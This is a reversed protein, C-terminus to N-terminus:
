NMFYFSFVFLHYLKDVCAILVGATQTGCISLDRVTVDRESQTHTHTCAHTHAHQQNTQKTNLRISFSPDSKRRRKRRYGDSLTLATVSTALTALAQPLSVPLDPRSAAGEAIHAAMKVQKGSRRWEASM